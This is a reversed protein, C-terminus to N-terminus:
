ESPSPKQDIHEGINVVRPEKVDIVSWEVLHRVKDLAGMVSPRNRHIVTQQMKTLGLSELIRRQKAPRGTSSRRLTARIYQGAHQHYLAEPSLNVGAAFKLRGTIKSPRLLREMAGVREALEEIQAPALRHRIAVRMIEHHLRALRKEPIMVYGNDPEVQTM